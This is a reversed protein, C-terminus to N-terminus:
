LSSSCSSASVQRIYLDYKDHGGEIGALAINASIAAYNAWAGDEILFRSSLSPPIFIVVVLYSVLITETRGEQGQHWSDSHVEAGSRQDDPDGGQRPWGSFSTRLLQYRLM